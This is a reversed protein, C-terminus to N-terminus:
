QVVIHEAPGRVSFTDQEHAAAGVVEADPSHSHVTSLLHALGLQDPGIRVAYSGDSDCSRAGGVVRRRGVARINERGVNVYCRRPDTWGRFDDRAMLIVGIAMGATMLPFALNIARRNLPSVPVTPAVHM